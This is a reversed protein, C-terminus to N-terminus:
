VCRSTYLLCCLVNAFIFCITPRNNFITGSFWILLYQFLLFILIISFWCFIGKLLGHLFNPFVLCSVQSRNIYMLYRVLYNIYQLKNCYKQKYCFEIQVYYNWITTVYHLFFITFNKYKYRVWKLWVCIGAAHSNEISKM